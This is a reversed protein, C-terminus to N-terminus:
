ARPRATSTCRGPAATSTSSTRTRSPAWAPCRPTPATRSTSTPPTSGSSATWTPRPGAWRRPTTCGPSPAPRELQLHRRRRRRRRRGAPHRHRETSFYLTGGVISIADLDTGGIGNASGDFFLSWTGANYCVVDEDAVTASARARRRTGSFSAYFQTASVRDFGDVNAGAPLGLSGTGTADIVRSFASATGSTSTPTMPRGPSARRTRAAPPRSTSPTIVTYAQGVFPLGPRRCRTAPSTGSGPRPAHPQPRPHRRRLRHLGDGHAHGRHRHGVHDVGRDPRRRERPHLQASTVASWARPSRSSSRSARERRRRPTWRPQHQQDDAADERDRAHDHGHRGLQGRRGQRPRLHHPQGRQAPQDDDAPHRRYGTETVANFVGDSAAFPFGTGNAGLTDIFGEGAAINSGGSAADSFSRPSGCRRPAATSASRATTPTRPRRHRGHDDPGAGDSPSPRDHRLAGWNGASDQAHVSVVGTTGAPIRPRSARPRPGRPQRDHAHGHRRRGAAGVFYEAAM